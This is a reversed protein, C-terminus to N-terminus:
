RWQDLWAPIDDIAPRLYFSYLRARGNLKFRLSFPRRATAGLDIAHIMVGAQRITVRHKVKGSADVCFVEIASSPQAICNLYLHDHGAPARLPVTQLIAPASGVRHFYAFGDRRIRLVGASAHSSWLNGGDLGSYWYLSTDGRSYLGSGQLLMGCDWSKEDPLLLPEASFPETWHAGDHSYILGFTSRVVESFGAPWFQGMFGVAVRDGYNIVGAGVHNQVGASPFYKPIDYAFAPRRSALKWTKLDKSTYAFMVRGCPRGDPMHYFPSVGQGLVGYKRRFKFLSSGTEFHQVDICPKRSGTWKVGDASTYISFTTQGEEVDLGRPHSHAMVFRNGDHIVGAAYVDKSVDPLVSDRPKEWRIGDDSYAICLSQQNEMHWINKPPPRMAAYFMVFRGNHRVVNTNQVHHEDASGAPGRAVVPKDLFREFRCLELAAGRTQSWLEKEFAFYTQM